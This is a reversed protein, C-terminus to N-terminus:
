RNAVRIIASRDDTRGQNTTIRSRITYRNGETGGSLWVTATTTTNSQSNITIGTDATITSTSITEGSALWSAWNFVYDLVADPDKLFERM